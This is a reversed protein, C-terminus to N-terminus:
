DLLGARHALIAMQTRNVLGLKELLRSVYTKATAPSVVLHAAIQTNSLGMGVAHMLERERDTLDQLTDPTESVGQRNREAVAHGIVATAVAPALVGDGAAVSRVATPLEGPKLGKLLIGSAGAALAEILADDRNFATLILVRPPDPLRRLARTTAIGDRDPMHLDVVAVDVPHTRAIADARLADRTEAVVVIDDESELILRIAARVQDDDDVLLVRIRM